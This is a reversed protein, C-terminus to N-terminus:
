ANRFHQKRGFKLVINKDRSGGDLKWGLEILTFKLLKQGRVYGINGEAIPM